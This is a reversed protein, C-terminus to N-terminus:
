VSIAPVIGYRRLPQPARLLTGIGFIARLRRGDQRARSRTTGMREATLGAKGLILSLAGRGVLRLRAARSGGRLPDGTRRGNGFLFIPEAFRFSRVTSRATAPRCCRVSISAAWRSPAKQGGRSSYVETEPRGRWRKPDSPIALPRFLCARRAGRRAKKLHFRPASSACRM